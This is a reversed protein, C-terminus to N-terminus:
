ALPRSFFVFHPSLFFKGFLNILSLLLVFALCIVLTTKFGLTSQFYLIYAIGRPILRGLCSGEAYETALCSHALSAADMGLHALLPTVSCVHVMGNSEITKPRKLSSTNHLMVATLRLNRPLPVLLPAFFSFFLFSYHWCVLRCFVSTGLCVAHIQLSVQPPFYFLRSHTSWYPGAFPQFYPGERATHYFSASVLISRNHNHVESDCEASKKKRKRERYARRLVKGREPDSASTRKGPLPLLVFLFKTSHM